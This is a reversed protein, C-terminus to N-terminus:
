PTVGIMPKRTWEGIARSYGYPTWNNDTVIKYDKGQYEIFQGNEILEYSLFTYHDQQWDLTDANLLTRKTPQAMCELTTATVTMVPQFDVTTKTVTKVTLPQTWGDLADSVDPLM